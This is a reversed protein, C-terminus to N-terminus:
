LEKWLNPVDGSQWLYWIMSNSTDLENSINHSIKGNIKSEKSVTPSCGQRIESKRM